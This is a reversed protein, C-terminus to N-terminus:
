IVGYITATTGAAFGGILRIETIPSNLTNQHYGTSRHTSNENGCTNRTQKRRNTSTYDFIRTTLLVPYGAALVGINYDFSITGQNSYNPGSISTGSHAEQICTWYGNSGLGNFQMQPQSVGSGSYRANLVLFLDKYSQNINTLDLFTANSALTVTKIAVFTQTPM